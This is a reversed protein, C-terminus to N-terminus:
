WKSANQVKFRSMNVLFTQIKASFYFPMVELSNWDIAIKSNFNVTLPISIYRCLIVLHEPWRSTWPVISPMKTALHFGTRSSVKETDM